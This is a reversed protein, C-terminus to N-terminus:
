GVEFFEVMGETFHPPGDGEFGTAETSGIGLPCFLIYQGAELDVYNFDTGGPTSFPGIAEEFVENFAAEPDAAAGAAGFAEEATGAEGDKLRAVLALHAEEGENTADISYRGPETPLTVEYAYDTEVVDIPVFGCNEIEYQHVTDNAATIEPAEFASFDGSEAIEQFATVITDLEEAIEEPAVALAADIDSQLDDFIEPTFEEIAAFQQDLDFSADCYAELDESGAAATTDTTGEDTTETTAGSSSEADDGGCAAVGGILLLSLVLAPFPRRIVTSRWIESPGS